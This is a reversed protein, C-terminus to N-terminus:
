FEFVDGNYEYTVLRNNDFTVADITKNLSNKTVFSSLTSQANPYEFVFYSKDENLFRVELPKGSSDFAIERLPQRGEKSFDSVSLLKKSEPLFEYIRKGGNNLPVEFKEPLKEYKLLEPSIKELALDYEDLFRGNSKHKFFGDFEAIVANKVTIIRTLYDNAKDRAEFAKKELKTMPNKTIPLDMNKSTESSLYDVKGRKANYYIGGAIIAALAAAGAWYSLKTNKDDNAKVEAAPTKATPKALAPPTTQQIEKFGEIAM